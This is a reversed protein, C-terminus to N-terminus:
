SRGGAVSGDGCRGVVGGVDDGDGGCSVVVVFLARLRSPIAIFSFQLSM